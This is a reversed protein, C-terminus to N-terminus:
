SSKRTYRQRSMFARDYIYIDDFGFNNYGIKFDPRIEIIKDALRRLLARETKFCEVHSGEVDASTKLTLVHKEYCKMSGYRYLTMGITIIKDTLRDAQPFNHDCSICEIDYGMIIWPAMKTTPASPKVVKYDVEYTHHCYSYDELKDAKNLDINVWGCSQLNNIHMFRIHPEINSEYRQFIIAETSINRIKMPRSLTNAFERMGSHSKFVLMVFKFLKKNSFKYFKHKQVLKYDILSTSPDTDNNPNYKSCWSVKNKLTDIFKEVHFNNWTLPVEVYFYPTFGVVKLAVDKDDATRGFIQITYNDEEDDDKEHYTNWDLIQFELTKPEMENKGKSSM